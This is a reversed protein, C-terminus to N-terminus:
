EVVGRGFAAVGIGFPDCIPAPADVGTSWRIPRGLGARGGFPPRMSIALMGEVQFLRLGKPPLRRVM